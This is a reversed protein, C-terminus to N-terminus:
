AGSAVGSPVPEFVLVALAYPGIEEACRLERLRMRGLDHLGVRVHVLDGGVPKLVGGAFLALVTPAQARITVIGNADVEGRHRGFPFSVALSREVPVTVEDLYRGGIAVRQEAPPSAHVEVGEPLQAECSLEIRGTAGIAISWSAVIRPDFPPLSQYRASLQGIAERLGRSATRANARKRLQALPSPRHWHPGALVLANWMEIALELLPRVDRETPAPGLPALLPEALDLITESLGREPLVVFTRM